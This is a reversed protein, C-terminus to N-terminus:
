CLWVGLDTGGHGDELADCVDRAYMWRGDDSKGDEGEEESGGSGACSWRARSREDGVIGVDGAVDVATLEVLIVKDDDASTRVRKKGGGQRIRAGGRPVAPQTRAARRESRGSM